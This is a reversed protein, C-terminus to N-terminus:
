RGARPTAESVHQWHGVIAGETGLVYWKPKPASAVASQVFCAEAGGDFTLDVRIHDANTVDHWVRKHEVARVAVVEGDFLQLIWDIYHSGWDYVAGGSIPQHSHWYHCPHQFGGVYSELLFPVGIAGSRVATRMAVFDPDWRRNQFVTLVRDRAAALDIMQDCDKASLAFPKECVVHRGAGLSEIVLRAHSSPPTAVVVLKVEDIRLLEATSSVLPVGACAALRTRDTDCVAALHLGPTDRLAAAHAPGLAGFGILGVGVSGAPVSAAISSSIARVLVSRFQPDAYTRPDEGLGVYTFSGLGASRRYALVQDAHRWRTRLLPAASAPAAPLLNAADRVRFAPLGEGPDVLLETHVTRGNPSWGALTAIGPSRSWIALTLGAAVVGGGDRVFRELADAHAQTLAVRERHAYVVRVAALDLLRDVDTVVDVDFRGSARLDTTLPAVDEVREPDCLVLVAAREGFGM